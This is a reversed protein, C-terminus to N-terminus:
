GGFAQSSGDGRAPDRDLRLARQSYTRLDRGTAHRRRRARCLPVCDSHQEEVAGHGHEVVVDQLVAM